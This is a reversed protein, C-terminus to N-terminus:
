SFCLYCDIRPQDTTHCIAMVHNWLTALYPQSNHFSPFMGDFKLNWQKRPLYHFFSLFLLPSQPPGVWCNPSPGFPQTEIKIDSGRTQKGRKTKVFFIYQKFDIKINLRTQWAKSYCYKFMNYKLGQCSLKM